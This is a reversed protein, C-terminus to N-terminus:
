SYFLCLILGLTIPNAVDEDTLYEVSWIKTM